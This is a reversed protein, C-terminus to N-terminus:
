RGTDVAKPVLAIISVSVDSHRNSPPAPSNAAPCRDNSHAARHAPTSAKDPEALVDLLDISLLRRGAGVTM